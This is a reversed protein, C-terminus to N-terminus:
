ARRWREDQAMILSKDISLCTIDLEFFQRIGHDDRSSIVHSKNCIYIDFNM